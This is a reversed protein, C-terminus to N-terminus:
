VARVSVNTVTLDFSYRYYLFDWLGLVIPNEIKYNALNVSLVM